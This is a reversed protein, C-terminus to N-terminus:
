DRTFLWTAGAALAASVVGSTLALAFTTNADSALGRAQAEPLRTGQSGDPLTVLANSWTTRAKSSVLGLAVAGGATAVAGGVMVWPAVRSKLAPPRTTATVSPEAAVVPPPELNTRGPADSTQAATAPPPPLPLEAQVQRVFGVIPAGMADSWTGVPASVDLVALSTDRDAAVAEVHIALTKGVKGVDVGVVVAHASLLVALRALCARAGQCSKPDSFGAERLKRTATAEDLVNAVGERTLADVVLRAVKPSLAEAGPRKSTQVVAVPARSPAAPAQTL